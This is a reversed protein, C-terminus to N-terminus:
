QHTLMAAKPKGTTGSTFQLNCVKTYDVSDTLEDIRATPVELGRQVVSDYDLFSDPSPNERRIIVVYQLEPLSPTQKQLANRLHSLVPRM